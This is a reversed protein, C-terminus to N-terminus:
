RSKNHYIERTINKHSIIRLHRKKLLIINYRQLTIKRKEYFM